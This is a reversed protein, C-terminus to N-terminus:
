GQRILKAVARSLQNIRLPKELVRPLPGPIQAVGELRGPDYGTMLLVPLDPRRKRLETALACGGMEPMVMDSLLAAYANPEADFATIAQAATAFIRAEYGVHKLVRHLVVRVTEDDDVVLLVEGAGPLVSANAPTLALTPKTLPIRVTVTTGEGLESEVRVDGGMRGVSGYVTALGMGMGKGVERTTFFPEFLHPLNEPPIGVGRDVVSLEAWGRPARETEDENSPLYSLRVTILRVTILRHTCSSLARKANDVLNLVIEQIAGADVLAILAMEPLELHISTPAPLAVELTEVTGDILAVLDSEVLSAAGQRAFTMLQRVLAAAREGSHRMDSLASQEWPDRNAADEMVYINGLIGALLNNFHHAVGGVLSALASMKAVNAMQERSALRETVDTLTGVMCPVGFEEIPACSVEVQRLGRTPHEVTTHHVFRAGPGGTLCHDCNGECGNAGLVESAEITSLPEDEPHGVIHSLVRNAYELKGGALLFVGVPAHQAIARFRAERAASERSHRLLDLATTLRSGVDLLIAEETKGLERGDKCVHAALVWLHGDDPRLGVGALSRIGLAAITESQLLPEVDLGVPRPSTADDLHRRLVDLVSEEIQLVDGTSYAPWEPVTDVFHVRARGSEPDELRHLAVGDVALVERLAQLGSRIAAEPESSGDMARMVAEEAELHRLRASAATEERCVATREDDGDDGM